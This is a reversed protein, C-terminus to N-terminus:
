LSWVWRRMLVTDIPYSWAQGEEPEQPPPSYGMAVHSTDASSDAIHAVELEWYFSPAQM